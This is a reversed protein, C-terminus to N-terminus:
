GICSQHVRYSVFPISWLIVPNSVSWVRCVGNSERSPRVRYETLMNYSRDIEDEDEDKGDKDDKGNGYVRGHAATPYPKILQECTITPTSSAAPWMPSSIDRTVGAYKSDM